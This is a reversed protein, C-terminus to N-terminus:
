SPQFLPPALPCEGLSSAYIMPLEDLLQWQYQLTAHFLFSGVGILAIGAYVVTFRTPLREQRTRQIGHLALAVADGSTLM